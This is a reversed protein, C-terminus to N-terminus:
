KKQSECASILQEVRQIVVTVTEALSSSSALGAAYLHGGGGLDMALQNIVIKGKSKLSVRVTGNDEERFLCIVEAEKLLLLFSLFSQTDDANAHYHTRVALPMELWAIKGSPTMRVDQLTKGLLQLHSLKKSSYIAQYVEEPDIGGEIMEAAIRHALPTTRAYRFSNTDTMVSVYLGLAMDRNIPTFKLEQFLSYLLEGISSSQTDIVLSAHAPYTVQSTSILDPHHDLFVIRKARKSLSEWLHGLRRPDNTDLIIWLDCNEESPPHIRITNQPDLFRYRQPMPDPNYIRCNKHSKELYHFLAAEAGLGDGDPLLHTSIWIQQAKRLDTKLRGYEPSNLRSSPKKKRPKKMPKKKPSLIFTRETSPTPLPFVLQIWEVNNEFLM